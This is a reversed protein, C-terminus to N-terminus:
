SNKASSITISSCRPGYIRVAIPQSNSKFPIYPTAGHDVTAKLNKASIYAKDAAVEQMNFGARATQEVLPKFFPSDHRRAGSL